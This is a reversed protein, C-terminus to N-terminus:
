EKQVLHFKIAAKRLSLKIMDIQSSINKATDIKFDISISDPEASGIDKTNMVSILKVELNNQPPHINHLKFCVLMPALPKPKSLKNKNQQLDNFKELSKQKQEKYKNWANINEPIQFNLYLAFSEYNRADYQVVQNRYLKIWLAIFDKRWLAQKKSEDEIQHPKPSDHQAKKKAKNVSSTTLDFVKFDRDDPDSMRRKKKQRQDEASKKSFIPYPEDFMSIDDDNNRKKNENNNDDFISWTKSGSKKNENGVTEKVLNGYKRIIDLIRKFWSYLCDENSIDWNKSPLLEDLNIMTTVAPKKFIIDPPFHYNNPDFLIQCQTEDFGILKITIDFRDKICSDNDIGYSYHSTLKKNVTIAQLSDLKLIAKKLKNDIDELEETLLISEDMTKM